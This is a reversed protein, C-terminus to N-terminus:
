YKDTDIIRYRSTLIYKVLPSQNQLEKIAQINSANAELWKDCKVLVLLTLSTRSKVWKKLTETSNALDTSNDIVKMLEDSINMFRSLGNVDLFVVDIGDNRMDHSFKTAFTAKGLAHGGVIHIVQIAPNYIYGKLISGDNERGVFTDPVPPIPPTYTGSFFYVSLFVLFILLASCVCLGTLM